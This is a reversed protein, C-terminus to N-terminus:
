RAFTEVPYGAKRWEVIGGRFFYVKEYGWSVAKRSATTSRSCKIGSCYIVVPEDRAVVAALSTENFTDKLDLHHAGPIHRRAYLRPNRVDVIATGADQLAKVEAATVTTAGAISEPSRYQTNAAYVPSIDILIGTLLVTL